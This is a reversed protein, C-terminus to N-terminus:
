SFDLSFKYNIREKSGEQNFVAYDSEVCFSRESTEIQCSKLNEVTKEEGNWFILKNGEVEVLNLDLGNKYLYFKDVELVYDEIQGGVNYFTFKNDKFVIPSAVHNIGGVDLELQRNGKEFFIRQGKKELDIQDETIELDCLCNDDLSASCQKYLFYVEHLFPEEESPCINDYWNTPKNEDLCDNLNDAGKCKKVVKEADLLVKEFETIKYSIPVKFSPNYSYKLKESSLIIEPGDGLLYNEKLTLENFEKEPLATKLGSGVLLEFNERVNPWCYQNNLNWLPYSVASTCSNDELVGGKESLSLATQWGTLKAQHELAAQEKQAELSKELVPLQWEGQVQSFVIDPSFNVFFVGLSVLLGLLIWHFVAGKKSRM